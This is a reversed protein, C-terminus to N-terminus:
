SYRTILQKVHMSRTGACSENLDTFILVTCSYADPCFLQYALHLDLRIYQYFM